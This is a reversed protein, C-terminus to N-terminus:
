PLRPRGHFATFSSIFRFAVVRMQMGTSQRSGGGRLAMERKQKAITYARGEYNQCIFTGGKGEEENGVPFL